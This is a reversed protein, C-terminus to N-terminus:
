TQTKPDLVDRLGDGLLNAGMVFLFIALGPFLSPWWYGGVLANQGHSVMNGWETSDSPALGIFSLGAAWLVIQGISLSSQVLLPALSNPLVHRLIVRTTGAGLAYAAELYATAKIGLVQSRM